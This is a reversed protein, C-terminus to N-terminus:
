RAPSFRAIRISSWGERSSPAPRAKRGDGYVYVVRGDATLAARDRLGARNGARALAELDWRRRAIATPTAFTAGGDTSWTWYDGVTALGARPSTGWPADVLGHLGVFVFGDGVVLTPKHASQRRGGVLPLEPLTTWRWTRGQDDSRGVFVRGRAGAPPSADYDAIAVYLRGTAPDVDTGHTWRPRLRQDDTSGPAPAGLVVSNISLTRLRRQHVVSLSGDSRRYRLRAIGFSERGFGTGGATRDSQHFTVYVSGDPGTTLRYGIRYAFPYGARGKLQPVEVGTWTEGFDRSAVVRLHPEQGRPFWNIAAYVVGFNPSAPDTDVTIDPYGGDPTATRKGELWMRSWTDGLDDSWAISLRHSTFPCGPVTTDAWYLRSTGPKPGPGWALTGHWNPARGSGAWPLGAAERWTGGGDGTVRLGTSLSTCSGSGSRYRHYLVAIRDGDTPHTAVIPDFARNFPYASGAVDPSIDREWDRVLSPGVFVPAPLAASVPALGRPALAGVLPVSLVQAPVARAATVRAPAATGQVRTVTPGSAWAPTAAVVGGIALLLAVLPSAGPSRTRTWRVISPRGWRTVCRRRM